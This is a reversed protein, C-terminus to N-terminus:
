LDITEGTNSMAENEIKNTSNKKGSNEKRASWALTRNDELWKWSRNMCPIAIMTLATATTTLYIFNETDFEMLYSCLVPNFMPLLQASFSFIWMHSDLILKVKSTFNLHQWDFSIVSLRICEYLNCDIICWIWLSNVNCAWLYCHGRIHARKRSNTSYGDAFHCLYLNDYRSHLSKMRQHSAVTNKIHAVIFRLVSSFCVNIAINKAIDM